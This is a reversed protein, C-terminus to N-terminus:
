IGYILTKIWENSQSRVFQRLTEYDCASRLRKLKDGGPMGRIIGELATPRFSHKELEDFPFDVERGEFVTRIRDFELQMDCPQVLLECLTLYTQIHSKWIAMDAQNGAEAASTYCDVMHCGRRRLTRLCRADTAEEASFSACPKAAPLIVFLDGRRMGKSKCTRRGCFRPQAHPADLRFPKGCYACVNDDPQRTQNGQDIQSAPSADPYNM